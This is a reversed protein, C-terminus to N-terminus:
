SRTGLLQVYEYKKVVSSRTKRIDVPKVIWYYVNPMNLSMSFFEAASIVKFSVFIALDWVLKSSM